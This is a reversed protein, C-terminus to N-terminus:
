MLEMFEPFPSHGTKDRGSEGWGPARLSSVRPRLSERECLRHKADANRAGLVAAPSRRHRGRWPVTSRARPPLLIQTMGQRAIRTVDKTHKSLSREPRLPLRLGREILQTVCQPEEPQTASGINHSLGSRRNRGRPVRRHQACKGQTCAAAVVGACRIPMNKARRVGSASMLCPRLRGRTCNEWECRTSWRQDGGRVM